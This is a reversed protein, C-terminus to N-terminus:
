LIKTWLGVLRSDKDGGLLQEPTEEVLTAEYLCSAQLGNLEKENEGVCLGTGLIQDDKAQSFLPIVYRQRGDGQQLIKIEGRQWKTGPDVVAHVVNPADTRVVRGIPRYTKRRRSFSSLLEPIGLPWIAVFIGWFLVLAATKYSQIGYFSIVAYLFV